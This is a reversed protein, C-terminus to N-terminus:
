KAANGVVHVSKIVIPNVPVDEMLMAPFLPNPQVQTPSKAIKDVVDQGEVVRGFVAYGYGDQSQDRNLFDNNALNIYIGVLLKSGLVANSVYRSHQDKLVPLNYSALHTDRRFVGISFSEIRQKLM